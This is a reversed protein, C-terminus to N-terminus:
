RGSYVRHYLLNDTGVAYVDRFKEGGIVALGGAKIALGGHFVFGDAPNWTTGDWWKQYLQGDTGVVYIDTANDARVAAVGQCAGGLGMWGTWQGDAYYRHYLQHDTGVAYVDRFGSSGIVSLCGPKMPVKGGLYTMNEVPNWRKGDWYKQYLNGDMGLVYVDTVNDVRVASVAICTGGLGFWSSWAGDAYYRHYLQHDTGVAFVDRFRDDEVVSICGPKIDLGGHNVFGDDSPNWRRGDWWKQYSQGDTGIVYIDTAGDAVTVAVGKSSGGLGYWPSWDTTHGWQRMAQEIVVALRPGGAFVHVGNTDLGDTDWGSLVGGVWYSGDKWRILPGGSWGEWNVGPGLISGGLLSETELERSNHDDKDVGSISIPSEFPFRGGNLVVPYGVSLWSNDEYGSSGNSYIYGLYGWHDGLRRDIRFVAFDFGNVREFVNDGWVSGTTNGNVVEGTFLASTNGTGDPATTHAGDHSGPVFKFRWEALPLDRLLHTATLVMDPGVLVGTCVGQWVSSGNNAAMIRGITSYPYNRMTERTLQHHQLRAPAAALRVGAPRHGLVSNTAAIRRNPAGVRPPAVRAPQSETLAGARVIDNDSLPMADIRILNTM